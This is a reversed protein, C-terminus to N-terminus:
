VITTSSDKKSRGSATRAYLPILVAGVVVHMLLLSVKADTAIEGSNFPMVLSLLLVVSATIVWVRRAQTTFRELLALFVWGVLGAGLAMFIVMGPGVVTTTGSRTVDFDVGLLPDAVLWVLFAGVAALGTAAARSTRRTRVSAVVLASM